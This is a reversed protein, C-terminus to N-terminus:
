DAYTPPPDVPWLSRRLAKLDRGFVRRLDVFSFLPFDSVLCATASLVLVLLALSFLFYCLLLLLLLLFVFWDLSVKEKSRNRM